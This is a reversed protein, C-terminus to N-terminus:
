AVLWLVGYLTGVSVLTTAFVNFSAFQEDGGLEAAYVYTSVATPAGAMVVAAARATGEVALVEYVGLALLPMLAVNLVVVRGTTAVQGAPLRVDLSAGVALLALPLAFESVRGTTATVPGPVSLALAAVALGVALSWIVPNYLVRRVEVLPEADADNITTLLVITLPVHLLVGAGLVVSAKAAALTGLTSAVLPLGLFGLNSHYSQVIAVSRTPRTEIGRHVVAAVAVTAVMVLWFGGVLRPSLLESLPRDHTSHFILAPLAVYFAVATLWGTRRDDLVGVAGLAAGVLLVALLYALRDLFPM